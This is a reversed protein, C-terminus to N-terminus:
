YKKNILEILLYFVMSILIMIIIYALSYFGDNNTIFKNFLTIISLIYSSILIIYSSQKVEKKLQRKKTKM